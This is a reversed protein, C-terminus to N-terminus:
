YLVREHVAINIVYRGGSVDCEKEAEKLPNKVLIDTSLEVNRKNKRNEKNGQTSKIADIVL